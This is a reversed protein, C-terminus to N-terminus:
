SLSANSTHLYAGYQILLQRAPSLGVYPSKFWKTDAAILPTVQQKRKGPCNFQSKRVQASQNKLTPAQNLHPHTHKAIDCTVHEQIM